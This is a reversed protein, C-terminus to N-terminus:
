TQSRYTMVWGVLGVLVCALLIGQLIRVVPGPAANSTAMDFLGGAAVAASLLALKGWDNNQGDNM